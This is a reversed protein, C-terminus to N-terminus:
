YARSWYYDHYDTTLYRAALIPDALNSSILQTNDVTWDNPNEFTASSLNDCEFFANRGIFAVNTPIIITALNRCGYFAVEGISTISDPIVINSLLVCRDFLGYNILSLSAPLAIATLKTCAAFAYGDISRLASSLAINTLGSCGDFAEYGISTVNDPIVISTLTACKYFAHDAISTVSTPIISDKCGFLLTNTSKEIVCNGESYYIENASDVSISTLNLCGSFAMDGISIISDSITLSKITLCDSFAGEKVMTVPLDNYKSAIVIESNTATGIGSVMYSQGDSSLTYELGSTSSHNCSTLIFLSAILFMLNAFLMNSKSLMKM